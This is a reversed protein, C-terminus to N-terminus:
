KSIRREIEYALENNYMLDRLYIYVEEKTVEYDNEKANFELTITVTVM